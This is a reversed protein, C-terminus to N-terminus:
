RIVVTAMSHPPLEVCWGEAGDRSVPLDILRVQDPHEASNVANANEASLLHGVGQTGRVAFRTIAQKTYHRNILTIATGQASLSATATVTSTGNPLNDGQDVVVPLAQANLHPTHLNLAHFTPTLWMKAGETMIPAQLVNVVQALNAMSMVNCQRHFVELMVGAALADRLTGAQEYTVPLRAEADRPGWERAEPHWVGWEDLAVGIRQDGTEEKLM